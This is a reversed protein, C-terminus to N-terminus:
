LVIRVLWAGGSIAVHEMDATGTGGPFSVVGDPLFAAFMRRNRKPGAARGETDWLAHHQSCPVGRWMAWETSITDAGPAAGNAIDKPSLFDLVEFLRARERGVRPLDRLRARETPYSKLPVGYHRGGCVIIRAGKPAEQLKLLKGIM